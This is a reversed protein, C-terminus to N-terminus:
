REESFIQPLIMKLRRAMVKAIIKAENNIRSLPRFSGSDLPDKNKKLLFYITAQTLTHLLSGNELSRNFREVFLTALKGCFKKNFRWGMVMQVQCGAVKSLNSPRENIDIPRDLENALESDISPFELGNLFNQM